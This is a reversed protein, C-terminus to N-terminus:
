KRAVATVRARFETRTAALTEPPASAHAAYIAQVRALEAQLDLDRPLDHLGTARGHFARSLITWTSGLRAHEGLILDAPVDGGGPRAIGGIGFPIGATRLVAAPADLLGEALPQFLFPLGLDLSLDNLGVHVRDPAARAIAAMDALAASTEVLPVVRARGAVIDLFRLVDDGSQFMPLMLADAGRSIADGVEAPTGDHLPNLRVLLRGEPVAERVRAIDEAVAQSKWTDVHGQRAAKGMVELDVMIEDVGAEAALRALGPDSAILITHLRSM